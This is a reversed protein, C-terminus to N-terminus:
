PSATHTLLCFTSSLVTLKCELEQKAETAANDLEQLLNPPIEVPSKDDLNSVQRLFSCTAELIEPMDMGM